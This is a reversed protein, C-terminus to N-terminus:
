MRRDESSNPTDPGPQFKEEEEENEGEEQEEQEEEEEQEEQEEQQEQEGEGEEGSELNLGAGSDSSERETGEQDGRQSRTPAPNNEIPVKNTILINNIVALDTTPSTLM